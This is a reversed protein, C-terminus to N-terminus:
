SHEISRIKEYFPRLAAYRKDDGIKKRIMGAEAEWPEIVEFLLSFGFQDAIVAIFRDDVYEAMYLQAANFYFNKVYRREENVNMRLVKINEELKDANQEAPMNRRLNDVKIKLESLDALSHFMKESNYEDLFNKLLQSQAANKSEEASRYAGRAAFASAIATILIATLTISSASLTILTFFIVFPLPILIAIWWPSINMGSFFKIRQM